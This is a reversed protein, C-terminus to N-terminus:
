SESYRYLQREQERQGDDRERRETFRPSRSDDQGIREGRRIVTIFDNRGHAREAFGNPQRERAAARIADGLDAHELRQLLLIHWDVADRAGAHPRQDATQVTRAVGRGFEFREGKREGPLLKNREIVVRGSGVGPEFLFANAVAGRDGDAELLELEDHGLRQARRLREGSGDVQQNQVRGIVGVVRKGAQRYLEAGDGGIQKRAAPDREVRPRERFRHPGAAGNRNEILWDLAVASLEGVATQHGVQRDILQLPEVRAVLHRHVRVAPHIGVAAIDVHRPLGGVLRHGDQRLNLVRLLEFPSVHHDGGLDLM